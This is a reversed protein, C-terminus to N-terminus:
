VITEHDYKEIIIDSLKNESDKLSNKELYDLRKEIVRIRDFISMKERKRLISQYKKLNTKSFKKDSMSFLVIVLSSFVLIALIKTFLM